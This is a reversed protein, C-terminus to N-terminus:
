DPYGDPHQHHWAWASDVIEKLGPFRPMWGLVQKTRDAAAVLRPPDGPRRPKAIAPITQGTAQECARIVERVSYGTGNGLNFCGEIGPALARIHADALDIVHIYDRV